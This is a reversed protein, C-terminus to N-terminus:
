EMPKITSEIFAIEDPTLHYKEYLEADTWPKSFDQIPVFSYINSTLVNANKKIGLMFRFFKTKMYSNLNEAEQMSDFSGIALLTNSCATNPGMVFTKGLISVPKGDLITGAGGNIKATFVKWSNLLDYNRTIDDRSIFRIAEYACLVKITHSPDEEPVTKRELEKDTAPVGFPNRGTVQKEMSDFEISRVKQLISITANMPIIVDLGDEFLPRHLTTTRKSQKNSFAVDGSYDNNYLYYMVSGTSVDPFVERGNLYNTIKQFHNNQAVFERLAIFSGDQAKGTFWKSPVIMSSYKESLKTALKIYSPFLQKGLSDNVGATGINEQYPPNGVVVDFKVKEDGETVADQLRITNFPKAQTLLATIKGYNIKQDEGKVELLDYATFKGALCAVNLGLIEYVMRTFEYTIGSTPITCISDRIAAEDCGLARMREYVALAFEGAKGAIDLIKHGNHLANVFAEDPILAIMEDCISKPTIVESEGLKGFKRVAVSAREIPDVTDDHSLKNLNHIKYDLDRLIFKNINGQIAELIPKSIGINRAIRANEPTGMKAIIEELSIVKDRTLFAFFLIRAYYSRFQKVPDKRNEEQTTGDQGGSGQDDGQGEGSGAGTDSGTDDEPTDLDSGEGEGEHAKTTFGAKSGLENEQEIAARIAAIDMLSLDVPIEATEEAVGRTKSYESVAHLIDSAQVQEMKDSNMVIIPSVRLEERIRDELRSNGAEEVNVNYIQSKQEQMRFMRDPMFDVLLTQPKMNYKIVHGNDDVYKKIFQNQLRFIAQDYEQPSATDKLFLMTDWQEVTSGTLMRNVTLTLTKRGAEECERIKRKIDSPSRYANPQDVGSINIIEYEGLNRFTDAHNRILAEMADCSACYPLVCVIHRCMNGSKIKDYDLFGLLEDDDKSGDIVALLDLIEQEFVFQKHSGDDAKKVSRPKLLASFAFSVGSDRLEKLRRRSSENPQFAFRIMQPFGYYPNEWEEEPEDAANNEKIWAEQDKVIDTFQYFAIIDEKSFESGMLIRYPTGSLHLKIRADLFKIQEEADAAEVFDEADRKNKIDKEYGPAKLVQGYKDARAGFHTEDVILLDIKRGFIERHKEKITDGQLDQLTLFVVVKKGAALEDRIANENSLLQEGALFDYDAFRVHSEVTKKWEEKVDAKASVVVVVSAEIETACCMSTFSKGFRMVAYMLLNTRGNDVAAKFQQITREQNPRPPYSETRRYTHTEPLSTAANYFQYKGTNEEFGHQIDAVADTLDQITAGKFFERSYYVGGPLNDPILRSRHRDLELFSHVAYDRFYIDDSVKAIREYEKQLDPFHERWEQLRLSVPRYTDGVKLYNPVTNTTFAYIHPDVRGIILQDLVTLDKM